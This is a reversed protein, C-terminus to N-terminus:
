AKNDRGGLALDIKEAADQQMSPLVHSYVDLTMGVTSHGLRESVIKPHIGLKMLLTAHTHRLTKFSISDFGHHRAFAIFDSSFSGPPWPSGDPRPCVLDHNNYAGAMQIRQASQGARHRKLTEVAFAPLAVVRRSKKTKPEKFALGARTQELSQRIALSGARLDIDKWRLALIEGRRLGGAFDLLTPVYFRTGRALEMFRIVEEEDLTRM